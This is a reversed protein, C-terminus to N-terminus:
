RLWAPLAADQAAVRFIGQDAEWVVVEPRNDSRGLKLRQFVLMSGDPSWSPAAHSATDDATVARLGSGDPHVIWLQRVAGPNSGRAGFAIWDGAASWYPSISDFSTTTEGLLLTIAQSRLDLLNLAGVPLMLGPQLDIYVLSRGDPSFAATQEVPTSIFKSEGNNLDFIRIAKEGPDYYALLGGDPSFVPSTGASGAEDFLPAAEGTRVDVTWIRHSPVATGPGATRSFRSYAILDGGPSWAPQQCADAGCSVLLSNGRGGSDMRYLDNGGQDNRLSYAIQRGDASVAFEAVRGGSETLPERRTGDLSVRWIEPKELPNGLYAIRQTSFFDPLAVSDIRVMGALVALTLIM